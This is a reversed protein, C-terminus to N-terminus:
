PRYFIEDIPDETFHNEALKERAAIMEKQLNRQLSIYFEVSIDTHCVPCDFVFRSNRSIKQLITAKSVKKIDHDRPVQVNMRYNCEPCKVKHIVLIPEEANVGLEKLSKIADERIWAVKHHQLRELAHIAPPNMKSLYNVIHYIEYDWFPDQNEIFNMLERVYGNKGLVHIAALKLDDNSTYLLSEVYISKISEIGIRNIVYAAALAVASNDDLLCFNLIDAKYSKQKTFEELESLISAHYERMSPDEPKADCDRLMAIIAWFARESGIRRLEKASQIAHELKNYDSARLSELIAREEGNGVCWDKDWSAYWTQRCKMSCLKPLRGYDDQACRKQCILCNSSKVLEFSTDKKSIKQDEAQQPPTSPKEKNANKVLSDEVLASFNGKFLFIVGMLFLGFVGAIQIFAKNAPLMALFAILFVGLRDIFGFWANLWYNTKLANLQKAVKPNFYKDETFDGIFIFLLILTVPLYLVNLLFDRIWLLVDKFSRIRHLRLGSRYQERLMYWARILAIPLRLLSRTAYIYGTFLVLSIFLQTTDSTDLPIQYGFLVRMLVLTILVIIVTYPDLIGLGIDKM